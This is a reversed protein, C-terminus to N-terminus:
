MAFEHAAVHPVTLSRTAGVPVALPDKTRLEGPRAGSLTATLAAFGGGPSTEPYMQALM